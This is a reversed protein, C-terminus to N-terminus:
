HQEYISFLSSGSKDHDDNNMLSGIGVWPILHQLRLILINELCVYCMVFYNFPYSRTKKICDVYNLWSVRGLSKFLSVELHVVSSKDVFVEGCACIGGMVLSSPSM